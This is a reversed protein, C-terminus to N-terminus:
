QRGWGAQIGPGRGVRATFHFHHDQAHVLMVLSVLSLGQIICALRANRRLKPVPQQKM